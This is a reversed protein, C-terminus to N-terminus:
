RRLRLPVMSTGRNCPRSPRRLLTYPYRLHAKIFLKEFAIKQSIFDKPKYGTIKYVGDTVYTIPINKNWDCRYFVGDLNNILSSLFRQSEVLKNAAQKSQTIDSLM